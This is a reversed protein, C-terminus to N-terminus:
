LDLGDLHDRLLATLEELLIEETKTPTGYKRKGRAWQAIAHCASHYVGANIAIRHEERDEPLAFELIAKM